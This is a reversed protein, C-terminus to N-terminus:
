AMPLCADPGRLLDRRTGWTGGQPVHTKPAGIRSKFEGCGFFLFAPHLM